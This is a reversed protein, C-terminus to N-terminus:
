RSIEVDTGGKGTSLYFRTLYKPFVGGTMFFYLLKYIGKPLM